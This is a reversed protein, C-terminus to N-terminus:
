QGAHRTIGVLSWKAGSHRVVFDVGPVATTQDILQIGDDAGDLYVFRVVEDGASTMRPQGSVGWGSEQLFGLDLQSLDHSGYEEDLADAAYDLRGARIDRLFQFVFEVPGGRGTHASAERYAVEVTKDEEM